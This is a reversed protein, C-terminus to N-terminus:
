VDSSQVVSLDLDVGRNKLFEQFKAISDEKTPMGVGSPPTTTAPTRPSGGGSAGGSAGPPSEGGIPDNNDRGLDVLVPSPPDRPARSQGQGQGRSGGRGRGLGVPASNRTGDGVSVLPHIAQDKAVRTLKAHDTDINVMPQQHPPPCPARPHVSSSNNDVRDPSSDIAPIHRPVDISYDSHGSSRDSSPSPPSGWRGGPAVGAPTRIVDPPNSGLGGGGLNLAPPAHNQPPALLPASSAPRLCPAPEPSHAAVGHGELCPIVSGRSRLFSQFSDGSTANGDPVDPARLGRAGGPRPNKQPLDLMLAKSRRPKDGALPRNLNNQQAHTAHAPRTHHATHPSLDGTGGDGQNHVSGFSGEHPCADSLLDDLEDFDHQERDSLSEESTSECRYRAAAGNGLLPSSEGSTLALHREAPPLLHIVDDELTEPTEQLERSGTRESYRSSLLYDSEGSEFGDNSKEFAGFDNIHPNNSGSTIVDDSRIRQKRNRLGIFMELLESDTQVSSEVLLIGSDSTNSRQAHTIVPRLDSGWSSRSSEGGQCLDSELDNMVNKQLNRRMASRMDAACADKLPISERPGSPGQGKGGRPMINPKSTRYTDPVPSKIYPRGAGSRGGSSGGAPSTM